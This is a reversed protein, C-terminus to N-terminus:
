KIWPFLTKLKKSGYLNIDFSTGSGAVAKGILTEVNRGWNFPNLSNKMDFDYTDTYARVQNDPYRKLTVNGYVLGDNLSASGLLLNITKVQGDYKEGLSYVFSLDIKDLSAFLPQGNGNKYWDNAEDLTLYGDYDPRDKLGDFSTQFNEVANKGTLGDMGLDFKTADKNSMGQRFNDSSMVIASGQLGFDDTGILNGDNDYVPSLGTPDVFKVPNNFCYAYPSIWYYKECLPDVSMASTAYAVEAVDEENVYGVISKTKTNFYVSGIEVIDDNGHFEEFEGKSSTYM